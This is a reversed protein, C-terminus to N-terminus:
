EGANQLAADEEGRGELRCKRYNQRQLAGYNEPAAGLLM